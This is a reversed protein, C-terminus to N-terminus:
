SYHILSEVHIDDPLRERGGLGSLEVIFACGVLQGGAKKVLDTTASATGGTALLDDVVLIKPQDKLADAHIELRDTGYELAYDIGYVKGPLKGPKRIPVFGLKQHTALGMGVIFGRAEIGVILDPKLSDCVAGLRDMVEAWGLPDRLMPSIDRFLIGPKPFDPIDHIYHRLDLPAKRHFTDTIM